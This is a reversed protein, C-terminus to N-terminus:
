ESCPIQHHEPAVGPETYPILSPDRSYLFLVPTLANEKPAAQDPEIEPVDYLRRFMLLLSRLVTLFLDQASVLTVGFTFLIM